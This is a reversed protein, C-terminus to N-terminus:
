RTGGTHNFPDRIPLPVNIRSWDPHLFRRPESPIPEADPDIEALAVPKDRRAARRERLNSLQDFVTPAFVAAAVILVLAGATAASVTLVSM